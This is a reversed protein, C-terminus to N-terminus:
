FSILHLQRPVNVLFPNTATHQLSIDEVLELARGEIADLPLAAGALQLFNLQQRGYRGVLYDCHAQIVAVM